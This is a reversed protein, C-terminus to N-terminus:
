EKDPFFDTKHVNCFGKSLLINYKSSSFKENQPIYESLSNTARKLKHKLPMLVFPPAPFNCVYDEQSSFSAFFALM